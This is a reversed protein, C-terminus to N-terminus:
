QIVQYSASGTTQNIRFNAKKVLNTMDYTGNATFTKATGSNDTLDSWVTVDEPDQLQITASSSSVSRIVLWAPLGSSEIAFTNSTTAGSLSVKPLLVTM